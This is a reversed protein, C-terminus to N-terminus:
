GSSIRRRGMWTTTASDRLGSRRSPGRCGPTCCAAFAAADGAGALDHPIVAGLQVVYVQSVDAAYLIAVIHSIQDAIDPLEAPLDRLLDALVNRAESAACLGARVLEERRSVVRDKSTQKSM